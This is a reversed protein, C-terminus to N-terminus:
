KKAESTKSVRKRSHFAGDYFPRRVVRAGLQARGTNIQFESGIKSHETPVYAMGIGRSLSPSFTGSTVEGVASGDVEVAMGQRPNRKGEVEFGVLRRRLGKEKAALLVEKGVFENKDLKVTWALGAELPHTTRDIDNGYLCYGM